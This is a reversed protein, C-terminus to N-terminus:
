KQVLRYIEVYSGEVSALEHLINRDTELPHSKGKADIISTGIFPRILDYKNSRTYKKVANMYTGNISAQDRDRLVLLKKQGESYTEMQPKRTDTIRWGRGAREAYANERLFRRARETSVGAQKAAQTLNGTRHLEKLALEM